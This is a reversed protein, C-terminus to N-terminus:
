SPRGTRTNLYPLAKGGKERKGVLSVGGTIEASPCNQSSNVGLRVVVLPPPKLLMPVFGDVVSFAALM